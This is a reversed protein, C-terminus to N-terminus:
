LIYFSKSKCKSLNQNNISIKQQKNSQEMKYLNAISQSICRWENKWRKERQKVFQVEANENRTFFSVIQNAQNPDISIPNSIRTNYTKIIREINHSTYANHKKHQYIMEQFDIENKTVFM